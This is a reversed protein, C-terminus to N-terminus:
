LRVLEALREHIYNIQEVNLYPKIKESNLIRNYLELLTVNSKRGKRQNENQTIFKCNAPHSLIFPKENIEYGHIVSFLHDRSVGEYNNGKNYASYVGLTKLKELEEKSFLFEFEKISFTFNSAVRYYKYYKEKCTPCIIKRKEVINIDCVKCNRTKSYNKKPRIIKDKKSLTIKLSEKQKLITEENRLKNNFSAACSSCCFKREKSAISKFKSHCNMCQIEIFKYQEISINLRGAISRVAKPTVNLFTAAEEASNDKLLIKLSNIKEETWKM